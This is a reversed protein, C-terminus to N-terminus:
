DAEIQIFKDAGAKMIVGVDKDTLTVLGTYFDYSEYENKPQSVIADLVRSAVQKPLKDCLFNKVDLLSYEAYNAHINRGPGIWEAMGACLWEDMASAFEAEVKFQTRHVITQAKPIIFYPCFSLPAPPM